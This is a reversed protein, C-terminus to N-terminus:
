GLSVVFLCKGIAVKDGPNLRQSKVKRGNIEVGNRSNMDAIEVGGPVPRIVAHDRSVSLDELFIDSSPNRGITLPRKGLPYSKDKVPGALCSLQLSVPTRSPPMPTPQRPSVQPRASPALGETAASLPPGTKAELEELLAAGLGSPKAERGSTGLDAIVTADGIDRKGGAKPAGTGRKGLVQDCFLVFKGITIQDDPELAAMSIKEGNVLVGSASNLDQIMVGEPTKAIQAHFVSVTPDNLIINNHKDHGIFLPASGLYFRDGPKFGEKGTLVAQAGPEIASPALPGALSGDPKVGKVFILRGKGVAVVDGPHLKRNTVRESNVFTGNKSGVDWLTMENNSFTLRAHRKSVPEDDVVIDNAADRGIAIPKEPLFFVESRGDGILNVFSYISLKAGAKPTRLARTPTGSGPTVAGSGTIVTDGALTSSPTKPAASAAAVARAIAAASLGPIQPAQEASLYGRQLLVVLMEPQAGKRELSTLIEVCEDYQQQTILKARVASRGIELNIATPM